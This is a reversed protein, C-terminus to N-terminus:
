SRVHRVTMYRQASYCRLADTLGSTRHEVKVTIEGAEEIKFSGTVTMPLQVSGGYDDDEWVKARQARFSQDGIVMRCELIAATALSGASIYGSQYISDVIDGVAVSLDVTMEEVTDYDSPVGPNTTVGKVTTVDIDQLSGGGTLSTNIAIM